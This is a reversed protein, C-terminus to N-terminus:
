HGQLLLVYCRKRVRTSYQFKPLKQGISKLETEADFVTHISTRMSTWTSDIAGSNSKAPFHGFVFRPSVGIKADLAFQFHPNLLPHRRAGVPLPVDSFSFKSHGSKNGVKKKCSHNEHSFRGRDDISGFNREM